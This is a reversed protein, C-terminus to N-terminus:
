VLSPDNLHAGHNALLQALRELDVPKTMHENFGAATAREVDESQGWGTLAFLVTERGWPQNRIRRAVEYGSMGPMGIDLICVDPRDRQAIELAASGTQAVSVEHNWMRILLALSEAADVNDDAVLIRRIPGNATRTGPDSEDNRSKSAGPRAGPLRIIFTSGQGAGASTADVTGGHLAVLGRVLALGIGLGGETRDIPSHIQAFMQFLTPLVEPDLGIGSDSVAIRLEGATVEATLQIAGGPDTYKAANHLLNSIAQSLRLPDAEIEVPEAPLSVHLSHQKADILPRATEIATSVLAALSVTEKKLILLQRSIRSVDLLDDLLLGMRGVQRTIVERAWQRQRDDAAHLRLLEAANRIPALPNRLEHALTALYEDKRHDAERLAADSAELARTRSQVEDLMRNFADVVLGIEDNVRKAARQSYDHDDVVHSAVRTMSDLPTSIADQLPTSLVLSAIGGLVTVLLIIAFYTFIRPLMNFRARLYITGLSEGNQTIRQTVRVEDMSQTVPDASSALKAPPAPQGAKAYSAYLSGDPTYLAAAMVAAHARLAGLSREAGTHDDFALAPATALALISAETSLQSARASRYATVDVLSMAVAALFLAIATTRVIVAMLKRRVSQRGATRPLRLWRLSGSLSRM